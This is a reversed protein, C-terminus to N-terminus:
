LKKNIYNEWPDGKFPVVPKDNKFLITLVLIINLIPILSLSTYIFFIRFSYERSKGLCYTLLICICSIMSHILLVILYTLFIEINDKVM